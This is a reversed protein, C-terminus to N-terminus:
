FLKNNEQQWDRRQSYQESKHQEPNYILKRGMQMCRGTHKKRMPWHVAVVLPLHAPDVGFSATHVGTIVHRLDKPVSPALHHRQVKLSWTRSQGPASGCCGWWQALVFLVCQECTWHNHMNWRASCICLIDSFFSRYLATHRTLLKLYCM